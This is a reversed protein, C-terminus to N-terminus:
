LTHERKHKFCEPFPYEAQPATDQTSRTATQNKVSINLYQCLSLDPTTETTLETRIFYASIIRTFFGKRTLAYDVGTCVQGLSTLRCENGSGGFINQSDASIIEAFDTFIQAAFFNLWDAFIIKAINLFIKAQSKLLTNGFAKLM